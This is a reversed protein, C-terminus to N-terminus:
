VSSSLLEKGIFHLLHSKIAERKQRLQHLIDEEEDLDIGLHESKVAHIKAIRIEPPLTKGEPLIVVDFNLPTKKSKVLQSSRVSLDIGDEEMVKAVLPHVPQNEAGRLRYIEVLKGAYFQLYGEVIAGLVFPEEELILVTRM